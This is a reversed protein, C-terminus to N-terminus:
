QNETIVPLLAGIRTSSTFVFFCPDSREVLKVVTGKERGNSAVESVAISLKCPASRLALISGDARPPDASATRNSVDFM